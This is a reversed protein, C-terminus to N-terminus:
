LRRFVNGSASRRDNGRKGQRGAGGGDGGGDGGERQEQQPRGGRGSKQVKVPAFTVEKAGVVGGAGGGRGGGSAGGGAGDRQRQRSPLGAGGAQLDGFSRSQRERQQKFNGAKTTTSSVRMEPGNNRSASSSAFKNSRGNGSGNGGGGGGGGGGNGGGSRKYSSSGIRKGADAGPEVDGYRERRAQQRARLAVAEAEADEDGSGEGDDDGSDDDSGHRSALEDEEEVATLGRRKRQADGAGGAVGTLATSPNHLAFERSQEDIEFEENEFLAAFRSDGLLRKGAGPAKPAAGIVDEEEEVEVDDTEAAASVAQPPREDGGLKLVRRAKRAENAEERAALKEAFRRNVKVAVKKSGRIRSEREKDIRAQISKQRQQDAIDPNALLRAQEYLKQAVFFGHMYPRLLNTQGILHDLSLERLQKMDLFKFNDYVEGAGSGGNAASSAQYGAPDEAADEAMEEVLNDLFACWRPAPGLQPIFFAHQQRGENATLLMGSDPVWEVHNLDVAPEVSTWHDGSDANWIKIARKDASLILSSTDAASRTSPTLYRLTQIPYEYGQDKRLLPVPSRLDYTHVIGNSSGTALHLGSRHFDLATIEPRLDVTDPALLSTPPGLASVRNRSRADWFEVTGISTGFALLGHSEEAMAACNVAGTRIGGQLAGGGMSEFDDGGVDVEYGRMFRGVELNLRFVEGNGNANVGVAPVLAEAARKSYKLDRGYRPIRTTYHVGGPSHFELSRDTQLHLSKSYDSSLLVFTENVTNTHRAYSLSLHPLYHTHIQPKYTGTSVVWEGDESVRVCQSAEEFEFDQLLEVRNAYEPDNKLSRKRKRALYEPLPRSTSPGAITYVPVTGPHSLKM